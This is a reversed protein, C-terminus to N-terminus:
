EVHNTVSKDEPLIELQKKLPRDLFLKFEQTFEKENQGFTSKFAAKWGLREVGPHFNRLLVDSKGTRHILYAIAWAGSEYALQRCDDDYSDPLVDRCVKRKSQVIKMKSAMRQRLNQWRHPSNNWRPLDGSAWLKSATIEAMAVASGEVFWVPGMLKRRKDHDTTQLFSNQVSHWYEHLITIQEDEGAIGLKGAFGLPLSSTMNHFGWQAGGNHGASGSPKGSELAKAGIQQYMLFGHDKNGRDKQCEQQTMHGRAIRRECFQDSLKLAAARDTGLVWYELRGSSGWENVAVALTDKVAKEVKRPIDSAVFVLTQNKNLTNFINLPDDVPGPASAEQGHVSGIHLAVVAAILLACTLCSNSRLM